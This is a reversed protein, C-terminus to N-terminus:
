ADYLWDIPRAIFKLGITLGATEHDSAGYVMVVNGSRTFSVSPYDNHIFGPWRPYRGTISEPYSTRTSGSKLFAREKLAHLESVADTTGLEPKIRTTDDLSEVNQFHTWTKGDDKSVACSIRMRGLGDVVEQSSVQNWVCVLDGTTPITKLAAPSYSSALGTPEPKSWTIGADESFSQYLQGMRTRGFCLLRGDRLEAVAPEEFDATAFRLGDDTVDLAIEGLSRQWTNGRDDSYYMFSACLGGFMAYVPVLIRGSKLVLVTNGRQCIHGLTGTDNIQVPSSWSKGEDISTRMLTQCHYFDNLDVYVLALFDPKKQYGDSIEPLRCLALRGSNYRATNPQIMFPPSWTAGGDESTKGRIDGAGFDDADAYFHSYALYLRGDRLEIVDGESNRLNGPGTEQLPCVIQDTISPM